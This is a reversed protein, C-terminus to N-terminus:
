FSEFLGLVRRTPVRRSFSLKGAAHRPGCALLQDATSSIASPAARYLGAAGYLFLEAARFPMFEPFVFAISHLSLSSLSLTARVLQTLETRGDYRLQLPPPLRLRLPIWPYRHLESGCVARSLLV